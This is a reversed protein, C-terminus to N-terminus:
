KTREALVIHQHSEKFQERRGYLKATTQERSVRIPIFYCTSISIRATRSAKSFSCSSGDPGEFYTRPFFLGAEISGYKFFIVERTSVIGTGFM